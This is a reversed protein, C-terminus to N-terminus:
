RGLATLVFELALEVGDSVNHTVIPAVLSGTREYLYAYIVGLAVAYLQQGL